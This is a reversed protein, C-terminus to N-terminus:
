REHAQGIGVTVFGRAPTRIRPRPVSFGGGRDVLPAGSAAWGGLAPVGDRPRAVGRYRPAPAPGWRGARLADRRRSLCCGRRSSEPRDDTAGPLGVGFWTPGTTTVPRELAVRLPAEVDDPAGLSM